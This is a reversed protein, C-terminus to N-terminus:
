RRGDGAHSDQKGSSSGAIAQSTGVSGAPLARVPNVRSERERAFTRIAATAHAEIATEGNAPTVGTIAASVCTSAGFTRRDSEGEPGKCGVTPSLGTTGDANRVVAPCGDM